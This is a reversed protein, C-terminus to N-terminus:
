GGGGTAKVNVAFSRTALGSGGQWLEFGAEVDILYWTKQIYGRSVADAVLQDIDLKSVSAAPATMAYSITNWGQNGFWVNYRRGGVSVTGVQAGFPQVAGHHNLWIMLEAGNPQGTTTPTQNFWIDYAVDYSGTGPQTTTWNTTVTGPTMASVPLPLGSSSTCLGWHCGKFLSPYGGPATNTANDISDSALTFDAGGDSSICEPASSGWENNQLTYAGGAVAATQSSCLTAPTARTPQTARDAALSLHEAATRSPGAIASPEGGLTLAPVVATTAAAIVAATALWRSKKM